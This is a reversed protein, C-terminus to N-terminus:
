NVETLAVRWAFRKITRLRLKLTIISSFYDSAKKVQVTFNSVDINVRSKIFSLSRWGTGQERFVLGNAVCFCFYFRYFLDVKYALPLTGQHIRQFFVM